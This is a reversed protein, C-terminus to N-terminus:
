LSGSAFAWSLSWLSQATCLRWQCAYFARPNFVLRPWHSICISLTWLRRAPYSCCALGCDVLSHVKSAVCKTRDFALAGFEIWKVMETLAEDLKSAGLASLYLMLLYLAISWIPLPQASGSRNQRTASSIASTAWLAISAAFILDTLSAPGIRTGSAIPLAFALGIWALWPFILALLAGSTAAFAVLVWSIPAVAVFTAIALLALIEIILIPTIVIDNDRQPSRATFLNLM